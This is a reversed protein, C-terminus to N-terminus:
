SDRYFHFTIFNLKLHKDKSHKFLKKFSFYQWIEEIQFLIKNKM